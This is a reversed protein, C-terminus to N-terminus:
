IIILFILNKKKGNIKTNFEQFKNRLYDQLYKINKSMNELQVCEDNDQNEEEQDNLIENRQDDNLENEKNNNITKNLLKKLLNNFLYM